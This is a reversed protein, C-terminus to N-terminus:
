CWSPEWSEAMELVQNLHSTSICIDDALSRLVAERVYESANAGDEISILRMLEFVESDTMRIQQLFSPDVDIDRAVADIVSKRIYQSANVGNREAIISVLHLREMETVGRTGDRRKPKQAISKTNM